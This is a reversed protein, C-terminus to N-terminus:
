RRDLAASVIQLFEEESRIAMIEDADIIVGYEDAIRRYLPERHAILRPIIWRFFDDPNIADISPTNTDSLYQPLELDFFDDRYYMPKPRALSREIIEQRLQTSPRLYIILTDEALKKMLGEENLECLSGGADNIFNPYGYTERARLIFDPVDLMASIEARRHLEQRRKFEELRLGGNKGAGIVGLFKSVLDLNNVTIRHEISIEDARLLDWLMPDKMAQRKIVDLIPEELYRTGIRYDGSYHFWSDKPLRNAITTKGVGSMGLLTIAKNTQTSFEQGTMDRQYNM